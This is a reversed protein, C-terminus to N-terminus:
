QLETAHVGTVPAISHRNLLEHIAAHLQGPVQHGVVAVTHGIYGWSM